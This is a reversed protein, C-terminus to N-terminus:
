EDVVKDDPHRDFSECQGESPQTTIQFGMTAALGMARAAHEPCAAM